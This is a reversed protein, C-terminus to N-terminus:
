GYSKDTEKFVKKFLIQDIQNQCRWGHLSKLGETITQDSGSMVGSTQIDDSANLYM